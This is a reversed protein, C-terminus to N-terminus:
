QGRDISEAIARSVSAILRDREVPKELFDFADVMGARAINSRTGYGTVLIFPTKNKQSRIAELLEIGTMGPMTIDSVIAHYSSKAILDLASRADAVTHITGAVDELLEKLLELLDPEDDVILIKATPYTM